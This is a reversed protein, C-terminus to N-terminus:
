VKENEEEKEEGYLLPEAGGIEIYKTFSKKLNFSYTLDLNLDLFFMLQVDIPELTEGSTTHYTEIGSCVGMESLVNSKLGKYKYVNKLWEIETETFTVKIKCLKTIFFTDQITDYKILKKRPIPSLMNRNTNFTSIFAESGVNRITQFKNDYVDGIGDLVKLYYCTYSTGDSLKEKIKFRYKSQEEVPMDEGEPFMAFPVHNFLAADLPSHESLVFGKSENIGPTGGTGITLYRITPYVSKAVQVAADNGIGFKENLTTHPLCIYKAGFLMALHLDVNFMTRQTSLTM